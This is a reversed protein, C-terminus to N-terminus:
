YKHEYADIPPLSEQEKKIFRVVGKNRKKKNKKLSLEDPYSLRSKSLKM